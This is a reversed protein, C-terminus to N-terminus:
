ARAPERRVPEDVVAPGRGEVQPQPGLLLDVVAPLERRPEGLRAREDRGAAEVARGGGVVHPERQGLGEVAQLEHELSEAGAAQDAREATVRAAGSAGLSPVPARMASRTATSADGHARAMSASRAPRVRALEDPGRVGGTRDDPGRHRRAAADALVELEDTIIAQVVPDGALVRNAALVTRRNAVFYDLHADLGAAVQEAIPHHTDLETM